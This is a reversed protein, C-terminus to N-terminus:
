AFSMGCTRWSRRSIVPMVSNNVPQFSASTRVTRYSLPFPQIKNFRAVHSSPGSRQVSTLRMRVMQRWFESKRVPPKARALNRARRQKVHPNRSQERVLAKVRAADKRGIHWQLRVGKIRRGHISACHQIIGSRPLLCCFHSLPTDCHRFPKGVRSKLLAADLCKLSIEPIKRGILHRRYYQKDSGIRDFYIRHDANSNV